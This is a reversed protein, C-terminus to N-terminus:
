NPSELMAKLSRQAEIGKAWSLIQQNTLGSTDKITTLEKILEATM